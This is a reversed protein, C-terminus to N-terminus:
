SKRIRHAGCGREGVNEIFPTYITTIFLTESHRNSVRPPPSSAERFLLWKDILNYLRSEINEFGSKTGTLKHQNEFPTRICEFLIHIHPTM